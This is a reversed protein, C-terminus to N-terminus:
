FVVCCNRPRLGFCNPDSKAPRVFVEIYNAPMVASDEETGGESNEAPKGAQIDQLSLRSSSWPSEPDSSYDVLSISDRSYEERASSDSTETM